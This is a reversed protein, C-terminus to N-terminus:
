LALSFPLEFIHGRDESMEFDLRSLFSLPLRDHRVHDSLGEFFFRAYQAILLELPLLGQM